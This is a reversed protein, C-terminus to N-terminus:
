VSMAGQWFLCTLGIATIMYLVSVATMILIQVNSERNRWAKRQFVMSVISCVVFVLPLLLMLVLDITVFVLYIGSRSCPFETASALMLFLAFAMTHFLPFILCRFARHTYANEIM